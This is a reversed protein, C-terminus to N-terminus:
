SEPPLYSALANAFATIRAAQARRVPEFAYEGDMIEACDRIEAVIKRTIKRPDNDRLANNALAIAQEEDIEDFLYRLASQKGTVMPEEVKQWEEASLAPEIKESM